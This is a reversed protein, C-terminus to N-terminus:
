WGAFLVSLTTWILRTPNIWTSASPATTETNGSVETSTATTGAPQDGGWPHDGAQTSVLQDGGWPHDDKPNDISGADPPGVANSAPVMLFCALVLAVLLVLKLKM